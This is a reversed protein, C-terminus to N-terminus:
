MKLVAGGTGRVFAVAGVAALEFLLEDVVWEDAEYTKGL